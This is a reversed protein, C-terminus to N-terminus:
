PCKEWKQKKELFLLALACFIMGVQLSFFACVGFVDAQGMGDLVLSVGSLIGTAAALAAAIKCRVPLALVTKEYVYDRLPTGWYAMRAVAWVVSVAAILAGAWPVIVYFTNGMGPGSVCGSGVACGLCGLALAWQVTLFRKFGAGQEVYAYHSGTYVYEGAATPAFGGLHARRGKKRKEEGM